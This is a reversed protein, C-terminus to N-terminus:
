FKMLKRTSAMNRRWLLGLFLLFELAVFPLAIAWNLRISHSQLFNIIPVVLALHLGLLIVLDIWLRVRRWAPRLAAALLGFIGVTYVAARTINESVGYHDSVWGALVGLGIGCIITAWTGYDPSRSM